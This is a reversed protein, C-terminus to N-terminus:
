SARPTSMSWMPAARTHMWGTRTNFGQYVFFQGWTTAGYANLGEDSTMQLEARFYFSTHPNILLLAHHDVTNSPAIAIGNSGSPEEFGSHRRRSCAARAVFRRLLGAAGSDIRGRHRRRHKGGHVLAGDVARLAHDGAAEGVPHKYLYFNLGDAWAVMLKKLWDPSAAYEAKLTDPNIFLKMRLDRYIASEGEAEALRGMANIYNTEVRNFDDEAQAYIMGFVADADTKGHM